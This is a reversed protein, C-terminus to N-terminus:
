AWVLVGAALAVGGVIAIFNKRAIRSSFKFMALSSIALFALCVSYIIAILHLANSSTSKHLQNMKELVTPYTSKQYVSIGTHSHYYGGKFLIETDTEEILKFKKIKAQQAVQAASLGPDLQKEVQVNYTMFGQDRFILVIGSIVYVLTLGLVVAGVYRHLPRIIKQIRSM